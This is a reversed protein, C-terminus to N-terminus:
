TTLGQKQETQRIPCTKVYSEVRARSARSKPTEVLDTRDTLHVTKM